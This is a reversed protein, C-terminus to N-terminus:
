DERETRLVDGSVADVYVEWRAGAADRVEVKWATRGHEDELEIERVTGPRADLAIQRARDVTVGEPVAVPGTSDDSPGDSSDDSGSTPADSPTPDGSATAADDGATPDSGLGSVASVSVPAVARSQDSDLVTWATAATLLGVALAGLTVNVATTRNM